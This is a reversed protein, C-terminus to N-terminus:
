GRNLPYPLEPKALATEVRGLIMDATAPSGPAKDFHKLTEKFRAEIKPQARAVIQQKLEPTIEHGPVRRRLDEAEVRIQNNIGAILKDFMAQSLLVAALKSRSRIFTLLFPALTAVALTLLGTLATIAQDALGSWWAADQVAETTAPTAQVIPGVVAAVEQALVPSVFALALAVILARLM